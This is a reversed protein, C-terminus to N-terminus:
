LPTLESCEKSFQFLLTSSPLIRAAQKYKQQSSIWDSIQFSVNLIM